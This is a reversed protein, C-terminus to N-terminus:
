RAADAHSADAPALSDSDDDDDATGEGDEQENENPDDDTTGDSQDRLQGCGAIAAVGVTGVAAM